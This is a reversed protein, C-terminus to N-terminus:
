RKEWLNGTFGSLTGNPGGSIENIASNGTDGDLKLHARFKARIAASWHELKPPTNM